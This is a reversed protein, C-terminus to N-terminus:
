PCRAAAIEDRKKKFAGVWDAVSGGGEGNQGPQEGFRATTFLDRLQADSLQALLDALFARGEESITPFTLTGSQSPPLNGICRGGEKWIPMKSWAQLNAGSLSARNNLTAGGFTLGVDHIMMFVSSCHALDAGGAHEDLCLLKQQEPKSDTHQLMVALLKLADRQARPAGGAREDVKDLEPWAWGPGVSPAELERGPMKREIAAYEFRTEGAEAAHPDDLSVKRPCKVCVVHVPYLADAGFGLAWLLRTAAVGAFLEPNDRGYRVKVRDKRGITCGFKPTSGSFTEEHYTCTVTAGPAFAGPVRPGAVMDMAAVNTRNWIQAHRIADLRQEATIIAADARALSVSAAVAAASACLLRTSM